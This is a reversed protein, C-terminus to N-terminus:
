FNAIFWDIVTNWIDTTNAVFADMGKLSSDFIPSQSENETMLIGSFVGDYINDLPNRENAYIVSTASRLGIYGASTISVDLNSVLNEDDIWVSIKNGILDIRIDRQGEEDIPITKEEEPNENEEILDDLYDIEIEDPSLDSSYLVSSEDGFCEEIYLVDDKITVAIGNTLTEDMRLLVSQSGLKNGLLEATVNVNEYAESKLKIQGSGNPLSTLIINENKYEAAGSLLDWSEAKLEDGVVFSVDQSTDRWIWMLLHNTYWYPQVQLRTLDYVSNIKDNNVHGTRNLNIEFLKIIYEENVASVKDNSGFMGSNAVLLSYFPPLFGLEREYEEQLKLYDGSIRDYMSQYSEKPLKKKDRIYDMLYYNYDSGIKDRQRSFDELLMEGIYDGSKDFVNIFEIRYGATGLEWFTSKEMKQMDKANLYENTPNEFNNGYSFITAKFNYKEMIKQAFISTERKGDEFVLLLAKPPLPKGQKYYNIVDEQTITVYGSKYLANLQADLDDISVSYNTSDIEIGPYSIAIFGYDEDTIENELFPEYIVFHNWARIILFILALLIILQIISRILKIIDKKSEIQYKKYLLM